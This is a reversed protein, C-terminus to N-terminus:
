AEPDYLPEAGYERMWDQLEQFTPRLARLRDTAEYEVRPPIEDYQNRELFGMEVLEELRRSLTNPSLELEDQ